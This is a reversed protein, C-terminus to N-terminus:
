SINDISVFRNAKYEDKPAIGHQLLKIKNHNAM